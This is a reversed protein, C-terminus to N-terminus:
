NSQIKETKQRATYSNFLSASVFGGYRIQVVVVSNDIQAISFDRPNVNGNDLVYYRMRSTLLDM